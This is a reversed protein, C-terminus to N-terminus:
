ALELWDVDIGRAELEDIPNAAIRKALDLAADEGDLEAIVRFGMWGEAPSNLWVEDGRQEINVQVNATDDTGINFITTSM